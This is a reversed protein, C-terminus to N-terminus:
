DSPDPAGTPLLPQLLSVLADVNEPEGATLPEASRAKRFWTEQHRAFQRTDRVIREELEQRDIRGRVHAVVHPYGLARLGPLEPGHGADLLSEVEEIWGSDLMATCRAAIRRHLETREIHVRAELFRREAPPAAATLATVSTGSAICIELARSLRYRDNPHITGCRQPDRQDLEHRLAKTSWGTLTERVRRLVEPAFPAAFLGQRLVHLYFGAGGVVVPIKGRARIESVLRHADTAFRAANYTEDLEICDILHHPVAAREGATPKATGVDLRRYIQRSDASIVEIPLRSCLQVALATKGCATPGFLLAATLEASRNPGAEAGTEAGAAM